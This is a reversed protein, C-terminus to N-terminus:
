KNLISSSKTTSAVFFPFRPHTTNKQKRKKKKKKASSPNPSNPPQNIMRAIRITRRLDNSNVSLLLNHYIGLLIDLEPALDCVTRQGKGEREVLVVSFEDVKRKKM